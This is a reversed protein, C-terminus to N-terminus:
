KSIKVGIHGFIEMAYLRSQKNPSKSMVDIVLSVLDIYDSYIKWDKNSNTLISVITHLATEENISSSTINERLIKICISMIDNLYIELESTNYDPNNMLESVVSLIDLIIFNNENKIKDVINNENNEYNTEKKLAKLLNIFITELSDEVCKSTYKIM